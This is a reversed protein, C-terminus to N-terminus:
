RSAKIQDFVAQANARLGPNDLIAAAVAGAAREPVGAALVMPMVASELDHAASVVSAVRDAQRSPSAGQAKAARAFQTGMRAHSTKSSPRLAAAGEIVALHSRRLSSLGKINGTGSM